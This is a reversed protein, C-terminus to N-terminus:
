QSPCTPQAGRRVPRSSSRAGPPPTQRQRSSSAGLRGSGPARLRLRACTVRLRAPARPGAREGPRRQPIWAGVAFWCNASVFLVWFLILPYKLHPKNLKSFLDSLLSLLLNLSRLSTNSGFSTISLIHAALLSPVQLGGPETVYCPVRM